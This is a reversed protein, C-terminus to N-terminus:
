ATASNYKNYTAADLAPFADPWYAAPDLVVYIEGNAPQKRIVQCIVEMLGEGGAKGEIRRCLRGDCRHEIVGARLDEGDVFLLLASRGIPVQEQAVRIYQTM